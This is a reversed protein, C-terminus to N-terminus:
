PFLQLHCEPKHIGKINQCESWMQTTHDSHQNILLKSPKNQYPFECFKVIGM